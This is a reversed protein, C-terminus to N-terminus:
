SIQNKKRQCDKWCQLSGPCYIMTLDISSTAQRFFLVWNLTLRVPLTDRWIPLCGSHLPMFLVYMIFVDLHTFVYM